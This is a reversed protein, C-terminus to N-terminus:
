MIDIHYGLYKSFAENIIDSCNGYTISVHHKYGNESMYNSINALNKNEVVKGSGFFADEIPDDTFKGETVFGCIKGNETKISGFTIDGPKIRGKNVGVGTGEGFTKKFMLHEVIKGKGELMSPPIPGCHFMIAKTEDEGYNNNFDLLMCPGDSALSLARMMVANPIDVECAASIGLDNLLGLSTCPAVGLITEFENWCRIAVAQWNYEKVLDEFVAQIKAMKVLKEDPYGSFETIELIQARKEAVTEDSVNEVRAFVDSLDITDVNISKNQLAIEDVRVTKFATTRAGIAGINFSKMGKVTRCIGGFKALDMAFDQTSPHVVFKKTLTFPIRAQRLTNCMAFKGCMADRRHAFDMKGIEDPYAQVLIPVNADMLAVLAGNEDGFNPLCLIIGDFKGKNEELFEAFVKGENITEVAGYRTKSEDMCIYDFGADIVAKQIECRADAIVEGPFFGRNGFYLAFTIKNNVAYM